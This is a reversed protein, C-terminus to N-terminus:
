IDIDREIYIHVHRHRDWISLKFVDIFVLLTNQLEYVLMLLMVQIDHKSGYVNVFEVFYTEKICVYYVCYVYFIYSSM